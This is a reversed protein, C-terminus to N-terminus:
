IRSFHPVYETLLRELSMHRTKNQRSLVPFNDRPKLFAECCFIFDIFEIDVINVVIGGACLHRSCLREVTRNKNVPLYDLDM